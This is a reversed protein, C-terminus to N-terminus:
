DTRIAWIFIDCNGAPYEISFGTTSRTQIVHYKNTFGGSTPQIDVFPLPVSAMTAGYSVTAVTGSGGIQDVYLASRGGDTQTKAFRGTLYISGGVKEMRMYTDFAGGDDRTGVKVDNTSAEFYGGRKLNSGFTNRQLLITDPTLLLSTQMGTTPSLGSNLGLTTAGSSLSLANIYAHYVDNFGNVFWIEPVNTEIPNIVVREGQLGSQFSGVMFVDGTTADVDFTVGLANFAQMGFPTLELAPGPGGSGPDGAGIRMWGAHIFSATLIGAILKSVTLNAIHADDILEATAVAAGSPASKNGSEDVAVVKFYQPALDPIHFTGVVPIQSILMASNAILRGLRTADSPTFGPEYEGHIEFHHLDRELNFTGGTSKGLSHTIQVAMKSAAVSPPAPTSPALGDAVTQWTTLTSWDGANPPKGADVARIQAEYPMSPTLEYIIVNLKDFPVFQYQWETVPYQIPQGFTGGNAALQAHTFVALQAHTVPFLPTTSTRYRIEYHDGDNIPTTDTNNPRTWTLQTQAKTDGNVGSQYTGQSFPTTWTPVGPITSNPTPQQGVGGGGDSGDSLSRNFDGVVLSTDGTEYEIYNSIDFWNGTWDRYCVSMDKVVPWSMETLRLKLPNIRVGRFVVENANDFLNLDPDYVWIYDGVVIDGKIDWDSTSLTLANRTGTFRNLQLQARAIANTPDTASESILRVMRVTNGFIDKYPNLGPLIDASATADTTGDGNDSLLVVRTTFDAVDQETGMAGPFARIAMDVGSDRRVVAAVPNTVFLSSALGADLTGNGRVKWDAGVTDTIYNIAERPTVWRFTGTFNQGINFYTGEHIHSTGAPLVARISNEFSLNNISVLSEIVTGKGDEDGLWFAMGVGSLSFDDDNGKDRLVGVYRASDLISDGAVRPDVSGTQIAVHGFYKLTDWIERPINPNIKLSWSGLARLVETVAM